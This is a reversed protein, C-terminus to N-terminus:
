QSMKARFRATLFLIGAGTALWTSPEPIEGGSPPEAAGLLRVNDFRTTDAGNQFDAFFRLATVNALATEWEAQTPTAGGSTHSSYLRWASPSALSLMYNTWTSNPPPAGYYGLQLGGGELYVLSYNSGVSGNQLFVDFSLFLANIATWNGLFKAPAYASNLNINAADTVAIAGGPNGTNNQYIANIAPNTPPTLNGYTWGDRDVDFTSSVLITNASSTAALLALAACFRFLM